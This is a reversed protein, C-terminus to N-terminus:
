KRQKRDASICANGTGAIYYLSFPKGEYKPVIYMSAPVHTRIWPIQFDQRVLPAALMYHFYFYRIIGIYQQRHAYLM